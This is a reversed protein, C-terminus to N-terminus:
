AAVPDSINARAVRDRGGNKAAYLAQDAARMIQSLDTASESVTLGISITLRTSFGNGSIPTAACARRLTDAFKMAQDASVGIAFAAFEEGGHRAVLVDNQEGFSRFVNATEILVSDGFEHGFQDNIAKFHDLDCMLAAVSMKTKRADALMSAAAEEFGRRNLLRTLQDTRAIHRLEARALNVERMAVATRYSLAGTLLVSTAFSMTLCFVMVRGVPVLASPATGFTVITMAVTLAVSLIAAMVVRRVTYRLADRHTTLETPM